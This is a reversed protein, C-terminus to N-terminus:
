NLRRDDTYNETYKETCLVLDARKVNIRRKAGALILAFLSRDMGINKFHEEEIEVLYRGDKTSLIVTGFDNMEKLENFEKHAKITANAARSLEMLM